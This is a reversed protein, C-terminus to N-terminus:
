LLHAAVFRHTTDPVRLFTLDSQFGRARAKDQAEGITDGASVIAEDDSGYGIIGVWKNVHKEMERLFRQEKVDLEDSIM